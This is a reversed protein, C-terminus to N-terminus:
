SGTSPIGSSTHVAYVYYAGVVNIDHDIVYMHERKIKASM